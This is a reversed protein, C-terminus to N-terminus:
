KTLTQGRYYPMVTYATGSQEWFRHVKVLAPHDFRALLRAENVFSRLGAEFAKRHQESRVVVSLDSLRSALAGPMFEKIAGQRYLQEDRALYVIGFGGHGLTSEIIYENLRYGAPLVNPDHPAAAASPALINLDQPAAAASPAVIRTADDDESDSMESRRVM